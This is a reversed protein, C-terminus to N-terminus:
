SRYDTESCTACTKHQLLAAFLINMTVVTLTVRKVTVHLGCPREFSGQFNSMSCVSPQKSTM